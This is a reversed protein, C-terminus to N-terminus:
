IKRLTPDWTRGFSKIPFKSIREVVAVRVDGATEDFCRRVFNGMPM